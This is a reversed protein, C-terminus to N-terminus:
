YDWDADGSRRGWLVCLPQAVFLLGVAAINGWFNFGFLLEVSLHFGVLVLGIALRAWLNTLALLCGAEALLAVWQMGATLDRQEVILRELWPARGVGNVSVWLQLTTGNAWDLGGYYLKTWGSYTYTLALYAVSTWYVWAPFARLESLESLKAAKLERGYLHSWAAFVFLLMNLGNFQHRTYALSETAVSALVTFSIATVWGSVPTALRLAWAVASVLCLIRAGLHLAPSGLIADPVVLGFVSLYHAREFGWTSYVEAAGAYYITVGLLVLLARYGSAAPHLRTLREALSSRTM